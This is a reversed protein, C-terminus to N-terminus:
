SWPASHGDADSRAPRGGQDALLTSAPTSALLERLSQEGANARRGGAERGITISEIALLLGRRLHRDADAVARAALQRAVVIRTERIAAARQSLAILALAVAILAAFAVSGLVVQQRRSAAKRSALIYQTQLLTPKCDRETDARALWQEAESLDTGRLVFSPDQAKAEWELARVLLRTHIRIWAPNTDMAQLLARFSTEFDDTERFFVWNLSAVLSPVLDVAVDRRLIPILRKNHAGAHAIELGCGRSAVSDPSIVFVFANASEIGAYIEALWAATPPIDEWDVWTDRHERALATHMARVFAKDTRAYSIFVDSV